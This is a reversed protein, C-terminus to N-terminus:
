INFIVKTPDIYLTYDHPTISSGIDSPNPIIDHELRQRAEQILTNLDSNNNVYNKCKLQWNCPPHHFHSKHYVNCEKYWWIFKRKLCKKSYTFHVCSTPYIYRPPNVPM